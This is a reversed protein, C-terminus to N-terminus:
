PSSRGFSWSLDGWPGKFSVPFELALAKLVFEGSLEESAIQLSASGTAEFGPGSANVPSFAFNGDEGRFNIRVRNLVSPLNRGLKGMFFAVGAPLKIGLNECILRGSGSVQKIAEEVSSGASSLRLSYAMNGSAFGGVGLQDLAKGLNLRKGQTTVSFRLGALDLQSYATIKGGAWSAAFNEVRYSGAAGKVTASIDALELKEKRVGKMALRFDLAPWALPFAPPDTEKALAFEDLDLTGASLDATISSPADAQAFGLKATGTGTCSGLKLTIDTFSLSRADLAFPSDFELRGKLPTFRSLDAEVSAEGAFRGNEFDGKGVLLLEPVSLEFSRVRPRLKRLDFGGEFHIQLPSYQSLFGNDTATFSLATERFTLAPAYYRLKTQIALNGAVSAGSPPTWDLVCDCQLDMERRPRINQGTLKLDALVLRGARSVLDVQADQVLLQGIEPFNGASGKAGPALRLKLVPRNLTLKRLEWRGFLLGPLDPEVSGSELAFDIIIAGLRATGAIQGFDLRPPFLSAVPTQRFVLSYGADNFAATIRAALYSGNFFFAATGLLSAGIVALALAWIATKRLWFGKM